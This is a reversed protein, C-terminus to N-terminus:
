FMRRVRFYPTLFGGLKRYVHELSPRMSGEFDVGLHNDLAVRVCGALLFYNAYGAEDSKGSVVLHVQQEDVVLWQAAVPVNDSKRLVALGKGERSFTEYLRRFLKETGGPRVGMRKTSHLHLKWVLEPDEVAQLAYERDAANIKKRIESELNEWWVKTTGPYIRYTYRVSTQFGAWQLPLTNTVEPLLNQRFWTLRPLGSALETFIEKDFGYLRSRKAGDPYFLWPGGYAAFPPMGVRRFRDPKPFPWVGDPRDPNGAFIVDWGNEGCVADLWRAQLHLPMPTAACLARYRERRDTMAAFFAFIFPDAALL